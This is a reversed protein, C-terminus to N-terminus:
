STCRRRRAATENSGFGPLSVSLGYSLTPEVDTTARFRRRAFLDVRVCENEYALGLEAFNTRKATYDRRIVLESSWRENIQYDLNAAIENLDKTQDSSRDERQWIYSSSLDLDGYALSLRTQSLAPEFDNDLLTLTRLALNNAFDIDVQALWDSRPGSLGSGDPFIDWDDYRYIRGSTLALTLGETSQRSWRLALNVRGGDEYRDLGPFRNLRFLNGTDLTVARSDDNPSRIQGADSWAFQAVPELMYSVGDNTPSIMPWSLTVAAEPILATQFTPYRDDNTIQKAEANLRTRAQMRLGNWGTWDRAWDVRGRLQAMDRGIINQDSDRVHFHGILDSDLWGGFSAPQYRRNWRLDGSLVPEYEDENTTDARLSQYHTINAWIREDERTRLLSIASDLRDKASYGYDRLYPDDSTTELDFNLSFDYPVRFAGNVFLYGRTEGPEISDQSVAGEVTINGKAFAQRYRAELTTTHDTAVYPTLKLDSHENIVYFYPLKIGNGFETTSYFSPTLFGSVRDETGDPVRLTPLYFVPVGWIRFRAHYFYIQKLEEDHVVRKARIEWLPARGDECTECSSAAVQRLDSYRGQRRAMEAGTIQLQRDLILRVGSLLGTELDAQLEAQDALLITGDPDIITIPGSVFIRDKARDYRLSDARLQTDGHFIEVNGTAVLVDEGEIRVLDAALATLVPAEAADQQAWAPAALGLGTLTVVLLTLLAPLLPRRSM